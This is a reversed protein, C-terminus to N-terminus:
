KLGLLTHIIGEFKTFQEKRDKTSAYYNEVYSSLYNGISNGFKDRVYDKFFKILINGVKVSKREADNVKSLKVKSVIRAIITQIISFVIRIKMTEVVFYEILKTANQYYKREVAGDLMKDRLFQTVFFTMQENGAVNSITPDIIAEMMKEFELRNFEVSEEFDKVSGELKLSKIFGDVYKNILNNKSKRYETSREKSQKFLNKAGDILINKVVGRVEMGADHMYASIRNLNKFMINFRVNDINRIFRETDKIEDSVKEEVLNNSSVDDLFTNLDM